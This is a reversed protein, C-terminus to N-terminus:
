EGHHRKLDFVMTDQLYQQAQIFDMMQGGFGRQFRQADKQRAFSLVSPSCCINVTSEVLYIAEQVRAMQGYLFDATMAMVSGEQRSLLILGCHPCCAYLTEGGSGHIILATRVPVPNGCLACSNSHARHTPFGRALTVGGHVKTVLGASTLRRLDRHITMPSVKLQDVLEQIKLTKRERLLELIKHQREAAISAM